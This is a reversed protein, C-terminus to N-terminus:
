GVRREEELSAKAAPVIEYGSVMSRFNNWGALVVQVVHVVFFACFGMTLWFHEWRAMEYGGLLSTIWHVQTPKYISLGTVLSGLGMLIVASYAIRQAGNYKKQPPLGKRLHLDVLTVQIADRISRREPVLLRWEGSILLYTVYLIGNIAFIWMFFFHYGLGETVRYPANIAKWFWPPFMRVLTLSGLGVRYVAHPHQYANDSDNWYILLGSWIMTFLVPFNVWHMWRIALPHKKELRITAMAPVTPEPVTLSVPIPAPAAQASAAASAPTPGSEASAADSAAVNATAPVIERVVEAGGPLPDATPRAPKTPGSKETPDEPM